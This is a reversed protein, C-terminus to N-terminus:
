DIKHLETLLTQFLLNSMCNEDKSFEERFRYNEINRILIKKLDIQFYPINIDSPISLFYKVYEQMQNKSRVEFKDYETPFRDMCYIDIFVCLRPICIKNLINNRTEYTWRLYDDFYKYNEISYNYIIKSFLSFLLSQWLFDIKEDSGDFYIPGDKKKIDWNIYREYAYRKYEPLKDYQLIFERTLKM